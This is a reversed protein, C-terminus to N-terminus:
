YVINCLNWSINTNTNVVNIMTKYTLYRKVTLIWKSKIMLAAVPQLGTENLDCCTSMLSSILDLRIAKITSNKYHGLCWNITAKSVLDPDTDYIFWWGVTFMVNAWCQELSHISAPYEPVESYSIYKPCSILCIYQKQFNFGTCYFNYGFNDACDPM